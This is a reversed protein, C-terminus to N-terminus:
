MQQPGAICKPWGARNSDSHGVLCLERREACTIFAQLAATLHAGQHTREVPCATQESRDLLPRLAQACGYAGTQIGSEGNKDPPTGVQDHEVVIGVALDDALFMRSSEAM